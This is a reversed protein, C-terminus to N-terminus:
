RGSSRLGAAPELRGSGATCAPPRSAARSPSVFLRWLEERADDDVEWPLLLEAVATGGGGGLALTPLPPELPAVAGPSAACTDERTAFPPPPPAADPPPDPLPLPCDRSRDDCRESRSRPLAEEDPTLLPRDDPPDPRM